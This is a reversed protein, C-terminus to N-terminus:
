NTFIQQIGETFKSFCPLFDIKKLSWMCTKAIQSHKSLINMTKVLKEKQLLITKLGIKVQAFFFVSKKLNKLYKNEINKNIPPLQLNSPAIHLIKSSEPWCGRLFLNYFDAVKSCM